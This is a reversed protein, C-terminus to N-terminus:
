IRWAPRFDPHDTYPAAMVLLVECGELSDVGEPHPAILNVIRLRVECETTWRDALDFHRDFVTSIAKDEEIRAVLFKALEDL